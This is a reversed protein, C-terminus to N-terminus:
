RTGPGSGGRRDPGLLQYQDCGPVIREDTVTGHRHPQEVVSRQDSSRGVAVGFAAAWVAFPTSGVDQAVQHVARVRRPEVTALVRGVTRDPRPRGGPIGPVDPGVHLNEVIDRAGDSWRDVEGASRQFAAHDTFRWAPPDTASPAGGLHAAYAATLETALVGFSWGDGAIHHRTLLLRHQEPGLRLVTARLPPTGTLDFARRADASELDGIVTEVAGTPLGALDVLRVVVPERPLVRQRPRGRLVPYVTRLVAQRSAVTSLAARLCEVSLPGELGLHVPINYASDDPRFHHQRWLAEQAPALPADDGPAALHHVLADRGSRLRAVLGTTLAGRPASLRLRDGEPRADVGALVMADLLDRLEHAEAADPVPTM